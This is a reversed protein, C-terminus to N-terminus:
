AAGGIMLPSVLPWAVVAVLLPAAYKAATTLKLGRKAPKTAQMRARDAATLKTPQASRDIRSM